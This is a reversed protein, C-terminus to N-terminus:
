ARPDRGAFAALRDYATAGAPVAVEARFAEGRNDPTLGQQMFALGREAVEEDLAVPRGLARVLDWTHVALEASQWDATAVQDDPQGHWHHILDDARSEFHAALREPEVGTGASWDVEEGRAMQLFHEPAAALHDALERVTWGECPTPKDLDDARIAALADGAQDLARSLVVVPQHESSM